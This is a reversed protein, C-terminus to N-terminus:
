LGGNVIGAVAFDGTKSARDNMLYIFFAPLAYLFRAMVKIEIQWAKM